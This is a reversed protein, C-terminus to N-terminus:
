GGIQNFKNQISKTGCEPKLAIAMDIAKEYGEKRIDISVDNFLCPRLLGNSSLRLRNCTICNGGEGGEVVSFHGQLLDMQHIFRIQLNENDCFEKVATADPEEASKSIVCNIKIPSLGWKQAAKIGRFVDQIHGGRTIEKYKIEDITDLSINLRQLGAKKLREAFEELLVGNTTMSLDTIGNIKSLENIFDVVGKRVLPEGGTIRIKNIRKNVAVKAFEIIEEFRLIEQHNLLKIGESPMCYVCRLNCRDTISIRLYNIKRNFPDYM